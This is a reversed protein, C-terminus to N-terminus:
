SVNKGKWKHKVAKYKEANWKFTSATHTRSAPMYESNVHVSNM